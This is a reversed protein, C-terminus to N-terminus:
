SFLEVEIESGENLGQLDSKIAFFGDAQVMTSLAGSKGLVPYALYNGNDDSKELRVRVLDVRGAASNLNRQLTAKVKTGSPLTTSSAGSLHSLCPRVFFDFGVAASVPHGPLGIVPIKGAICVLVPKGPKMAVGHIIIGPKDLKALVKEGLDRTGVSSSGSFIVVDNEGLAKQLHATFDDENDTTIGYYTPLGHYQRCYAGLFVGNMDRIKGPEIKQTYPIIEDGSSFLGVRVKRYVSIETIGLGALLGLDQPRLVQGKKLVTSQIQIDDGTGLINSGSSAPKVVEIMTEDIQVTHEFMVVGDTGPPLFGGTAIKYCEMSGPGTDVVEGMHVEGSIKLYVPISESAGYTDAAIVAYGDMTSRPLPPLNEPSSISSALVRGLADELKTTEKAVPSLHQLADFLCAQADELPLVGSRGLMDLPSAGNSLTKAKM